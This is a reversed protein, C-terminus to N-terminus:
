AEPGSPLTFFFTSGSGPESEVWIRGGHFEIIRKVLALGIGTGESTADLKTFLGFIQEHHEADIGIGNDKVYLVPVDGRGGRQGIEIVPRSQAGMYKAANDILNQLVEILRPRDGYVVPLDPDIQLTVGREDLRGQVLEVAEKVLENFSVKEKENIIRGVRSLELLENLLRQMKLVADQIRHVDKKLQEINGSLADQELYSLFGTITFLPSKLDHSVTYTFQELEANKNALEEVFKEREAEVQKRFTIDEVNGEYYELNGQKDFIGQVTMSIWIRSGDKRLDLTEYNYLKEGSNLLRRVEDRERAHV